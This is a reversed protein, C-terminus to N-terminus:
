CSAEVTLVARARDVLEQEVGSSVLYEAASPWGSRLRRLMANIGTASPAEQAYEPAEPPLGLGAASLNALMTEFVPRSREYDAVIDEDGVGLMALTVAIVFGTRDKGTHCHLLTAGETTVVEELVRAVAPAARHLQGPLFGDASVDMHEDVGGGLEYFDLVVGRGDAGLPGSGGLRVGRLDVVRRVGLEGIAFAVDAETMLQATESRYLKGTRVVRGDSTRVGGIDRANVLGEFHLQTV